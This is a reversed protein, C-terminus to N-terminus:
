LQIQKTIIIDDSGDNVTAECGITVANLASWATPMDNNTLTVVKQRHTAAWGSDVGNQVTERTWQWSQVHDTIDEEGWFLYPVLTMNVYGPRKTVVDPYPTGNNDYFRLVYQATGEIHLWDNAAWGPEETTADVLCQWKQGRHYVESIEYIGTVSNYSNYHYGGAQAAAASWAPYSVHQAVPNHQKDYYTVNSLVARDIFTVDEYDGIIGQFKDALWSPPKGYSSAYNAEQLKPSTVGTLRVARDKTIYWLSQRSEDIPNGWRAVNMMRCPPFNRGGDVAADKYMVVDIYNNGPEAHVANERSLVRMWSTFYFNRGDTEVAQGGEVSSLGSALSPAGNFVGKLINGPVQATFYGDWKDSLHLRYMSDGDADVGLSEVSTIEDSETLIVDGEIARLRNVILQLIEMSQASLRAFQASGDPKIGWGQGDFLGEIFDPSKLIGEFVVVAKFLSQQEATLGQRFTIHGNATDDSIKSLRQDLLQQLRELMDLNSHTHGIGGGGNYSGLVYDIFFQVIGGLTTSGWSESYPDQVPFLAGSSLQTRPFEVLRPAITFSGVEPVVIDLVDQPTDTRPLNLYPKADAYKYTFTYTAPLESAKYNVDSDTVVIQRLYAGAYIYKKLSPFFDLLWLREKKGLRGTNKKFKRETDVRFETAVEEIEAINHTHAATNDAEGYARFTDIGGLSNEFLVWQEQESKMDQAYYRQIYTLREGSGNEVWVDYYSPLAGTKGAIVAYGVPITWAQGATITALTITTDTDEVHAQCKVTADSVAYYTLFEPTNYTVGKVNPQWTLFNQQLFNEATDALRDIGARIATFDFAAATQGTPTVTVHFTKCIDTQRYPTSVNQLLFALQPFVIDYLDIEVKGDGNPSFTRQAVNSGGTSVAVTVDRDVTVVLHQMNGVLTLTDPRQNITM